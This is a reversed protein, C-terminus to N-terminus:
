VVPNKFEGHIAEIAALVDDTLAIEGGALIADVQEPRTAGPLASTVGPRGRVWAVAMAAPDIGADKAIAVYRDAAALARPHGYRDRFRQPYTALRSGEPLAGGSYKGTLIGTAIPSFAMMGIEERKCVEALDGDFDRKLLHYVNQLSVITPLGSAESLAAFRTLGWANENSVGAYRLKGAEILREFAELQAEMPVTRDPWHTQYLDIYDVGLRTLSDEVAREFNHSDLSGHGGRIHPVISGFTGGNPGAIKTAVIVKDRPKGALWKGLIVESAGYTEARPPVAYMEATDYFNVGGDYAMDLLRLSMAEDVTSGFTMTGFCIDSVLLGSRGLRRFEM